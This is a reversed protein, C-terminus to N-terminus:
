VEVRNFRNRLSFIFLLLGIVSLGFGLLMTAPVGIGNISIGGVIQGLICAITIAITLLTQGKVKDNENMQENIYFSSAPIFIAYGAIQLSQSLYVSWIGTHLYLPLLMLLHKIVFACLSFILMGKLRFRKQLFSFGCMAPIELFAALSIAFSMERTGKGIQTVISLMYTNIFNHPIFILIMGALFFLLYPNDRILMVTGTHAPASSSRTKNPAFYFSGILLGISAVVYSWILYDAHKDALFGILYCFVAFAASGIGRALSYDLDKKQDIYYMGVSNIMPQVTLTVSSLTCFFVLIVAKSHNWLLLAISSLIALTVLACLGRKLSIGNPKDAMNAFLPQLFLAALNSGATIYGVQVVSFGYATLFRESFAYVLCATIWYCSQLFAYKFTYQSM